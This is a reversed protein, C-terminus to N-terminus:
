PRVKGCTNAYGGKKRPGGQEFCQEREDPFGRGKRETRRKTKEMKGLHLLVKQQDKRGRLEKAKGV